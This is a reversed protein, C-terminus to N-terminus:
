STVWLLDNYRSNARLLDGEHERLFLHVNRQELLGAARAGLHPGTRHEERAEGGALHGHLRLRPTATASATLANASSSGSSLFQGAVNDFTGLLNTPHHSGRAPAGVGRFLTRYFSARLHTWTARGCHQCHGRAASALIGLSCSAAQM